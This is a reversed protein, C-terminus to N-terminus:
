LALQLVLHIWLLNLMENSATVLRDNDVINAYTFLAFVINFSLLFSGTFMFAIWRQALRFPEYAKLFDLMYDAKEERTFISKDIGSIAADIVKKSGFIKGIFGWM